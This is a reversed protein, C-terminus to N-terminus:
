PNAKDTSQRAHYPNTDGSLGGPASKRAALISGANSAAGSGRKSSFEGAVASKVFQRALEGKTFKKPAAM